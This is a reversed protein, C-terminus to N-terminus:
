QPAGFWPAPRRLKVLWALGLGAAVFLAPLAPMMRSYNPAAESLISPFLMILAWLALLILADVDPDRDPQEPSDGIQRRAGRGIRMAWLALGIYFPIALLLDFVPRGALNHTWERDGEVSFMGLIHLFNNALARLPSDGSVREAFISVESAHGFFLEPHRYFEYGLPLFVLVAAAGCLMLGVLPADLVFRHGRPRQWTLWLVYPVLIFPVFRGAPHTWVALGTLVGSVLYAALRRNRTQAHNGLWFAGIIACLIVPMM